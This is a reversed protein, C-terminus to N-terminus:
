IPLQEQSDVDVSNVEWNHTPRGGFDVKGKYIMQVTDGIQYCKSLLGELQNSLQVAFPVGGLDEFYGWTNKYGASNAEKVEKILGIKGILPSDVALPTLIVIPKEDPNEPKSYIEEVLGPVLRLCKEWKGLGGKKVNVPRGYTGGITQEQNMNIEM